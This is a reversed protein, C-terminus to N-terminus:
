AASKIFVGFTDRNEVVGYLLDCTVLTSLYEPIYNSQTRIGHSAHVIADKQALCGVRGSTGSIYPMRSTVYVPIGYLMGVAGKLVPDAGNTNQVLTFKDIGMIDGWMVAPHFFFARNERPANAVDLAQIAARIDSDAVNTTSAGVTQSFNDFLAIIADELVAGITYAANEAYRKQLEYSRKVQWAERDEIAFSVEYWTNVTLTVPTETPSNLTVATANNKVNATMETLGPIYLNDGGGAFESSMDTFFKGVVLSARAFDNIKDSWISPMFVDLDGSVGTFTGSPFAM